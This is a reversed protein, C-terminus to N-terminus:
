SRTWWIPLPDSELTDGPAFPRSLQVFTRYDQQVASLVDFPNM